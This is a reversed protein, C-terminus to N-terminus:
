SLVADVRGRPPSLMRRSRPESAKFAVGRQAVVRQALHGRAVSFLGVRLGGRELVIFPQPAAQAVETFPSGKARCTVNGALLPIGAWADRV